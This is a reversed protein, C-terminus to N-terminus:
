EELEPVPKRQAHLTILAGVLVALGCCMQALSLAEDFLWASLLVTGLPCLLQSSQSLTVGLERIAVYYLTHAIAISFVASGALVMLNFPDARFVVEADGLWFMFPLLLLSTMGSILGFSVTSALHGACRKVLVGYLAWSGTAVLALGMGEWSVQGPKWGAGYGIVGMAGLLAIGVGLWFSGRRILAQEEMFMVLAM